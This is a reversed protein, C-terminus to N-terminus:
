DHTMEEVTIPLSQLYILAKEIAAKEGTIQCVTFGMTTGKLREINAQLINVTINFQKILTSILPQESSEGSFTLRIISSFNKDENSASSRKKILDAKIFDTLTLHSANRILKKTIAHQPRSFIDVVLGQEILRGQELIGVRDCIKKIVDLEHTILLITLGLKENIEKLLNLIAETSASDLASTAEDCLLVEPDTSLARAIAVRQKQGGSLEAPYHMQRDELGILKLLSTVKKQIEAKTKGAIKMPLAVNEFATYSDLLNFHQFIMGIKRRQIRLQGPTLKNLEVNNVTVTGNEPRELLNVCRLLTSKGAGSTGLVGFIEGKELQLNINELAIVNQRNLVYTKSLNSLKLM